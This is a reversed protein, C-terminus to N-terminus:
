GSAASSPILSNATRVTPNATPANAATSRFSHPARLRQDIRTKATTQARSTTEAANGNM